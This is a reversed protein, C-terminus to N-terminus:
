QKFSPLKVDWRIASVGNGAEIRASEGNNCTYTGPTNMVQAFLTVNGAELDTYLSKKEAVNYLWDDVYPDAVPVSGREQLTAQKLSYGNDAAIKMVTAKASERGQPLEYYVQYWPTINSGTLEVRGSNGLACKRVGGADALARELPKAVEEAYNITSNRKPLVLALVAIVVLLAALGAFVLLQKKRVGGQINTPTKV